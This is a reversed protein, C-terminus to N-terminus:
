KNKNNQPPPFFFYTVSAQPTESRMYDVTLGAISHDSGKLDKLPVLLVACYGAVCTLVSSMGALPLNPASINLEYDKVVCLLTPHEIETESCGPERCENQLVPLIALKVPSDSAVMVAHTCPMDTGESEILKKSASTFAAASGKCLVEAVKLIETHLATREKEPKPTFTCPYVLDDMAAFEVPLPSSSCPTKRDEAVTEFFNAFHTSVTEPIDETPAIRKKIVARRTRVKRKDAAQGVRARGKVINMSEVFDLLHQFAKNFEVIQKEGKSRKDKYESPKWQVIELSLKELAAKANTATAIVEPVGMAQVRDDDIVINYLENAAEV